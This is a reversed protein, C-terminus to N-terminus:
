AEQHTTQQGTAVQLGASDNAALREEASRIARLLGRATLAAERTVPASQREGNFMPEGSLVTGSVFWKGPPGFEADVQEQLEDVERDLEHRNPAQGAM